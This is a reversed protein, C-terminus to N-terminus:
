GARRRLYTELTLDLQLSSGTTTSGLGLRKLLYFHQAQELAELFRLLNEYGGELTTTIELRVLEPRDKIADSRFDVRGPRVGVQAAAQELEAVIASFGANEDLFHERAFQNLQQATVPLNREMGALRAVEQGAREGEAELAAVAREDIPEATLPRLLLFYVGANLVLLVLLARVFWRQRRTNPM